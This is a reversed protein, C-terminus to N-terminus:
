VTYCPQLMLITKVPEERYIVPLLWKEDPLYLQLGGKFTLGLSFGVWAERLFLLSTKPTKCVCSLQEEVSGFFPV